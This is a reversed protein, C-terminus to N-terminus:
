IYQRLTQWLKLADARSPKPPLQAMIGLGESAEHFADHPLPSVAATQIFADVSILRQIWELGSKGGISADVVVLAPANAAVSELATEGDHAWLVEIDKETSLGQALEELPEVQDAVLLICPM